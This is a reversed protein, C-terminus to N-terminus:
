FRDERDESVADAVSAGRSRIPRFAPLDDRTPLTVTGKTSLKLLASPLSSTRPYHDCNLSPSVVTPSSWREDKDYGSFTPGSAPRSSARASSMAHWTTMTAVDDSTDFTRHVWSLRRVAAIPLHAREARRVETVLRPGILAVVALLLLVASLPRSVFILPDGQAIALSRRLQEEATPGLILGIVAPAPPIDALRMLYGVVGIAYLVGLDFVSRNLSYAGVSALM